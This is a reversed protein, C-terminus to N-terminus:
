RVISSTQELEVYFIKGDSNDVYGCQRYVLIRLILFSIHFRLLLLSQPYTSLGVFLSM